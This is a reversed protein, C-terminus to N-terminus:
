NESSESMDDQKEEESESMDEKEKQIDEESERLDEKGKQIDEETVQYSIQDCIKHNFFYIFSLENPHLDDYSLLIELSLYDHDVFSLSEVCTNSPLDGVSSSNTNSTPSCGRQIEEFITSPNNLISNNHSVNRVVKKPIQKENNEVVYHEQNELLHITIKETELFKSINNKTLKLCPTNIEFYRFLNDHTTQEFWKACYKKGSVKEPYLELLIFSERNNKLWVFIAPFYIRIKELPVHVHKNNKKGGYNYEYINTEFLDLTTKTFSIFEMCAEEEKLKNNFNQRRTEEIGLFERLIKLSICFIGNIKAIIVKKPDM